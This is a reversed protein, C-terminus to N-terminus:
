LKKKKKEIRPHSLLFIFTKTIYVNVKKEVRQQPEKGAGTSERGPKRVQFTRFLVVVFKVAASNSQLVIKAMTENSIALLAAVIHAFILPLIL